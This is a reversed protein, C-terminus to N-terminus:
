IALLIYMKHFSMYLRTALLKKYFACDENSCIVIFDYNMKKAFETAIYKNALKILLKKDCLFDLIANCADKSLNFLEIIDEEYMYNLRSIRALIALDLNTM